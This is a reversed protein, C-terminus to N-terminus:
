LHGVQECCLQCTQTPTVGHSNMMHYALFEESACRRECRTCMLAHVRSFHATMKEASQHMTGCVPCAFAPMSVKAVEMQQKRKLTADGELPASM